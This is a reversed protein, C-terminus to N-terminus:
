TKSSIKNLIAQIKLPDTQRANASAFGFALASKSVAVASSCSSHLANIGTSQILQTVNEASVGAGAMIEIRGDGYQQMKRLQALGQMARLAGGSTLIREFGLEVAWDIAQLPDVLLDVVRHLTKGMGESAQCLEALLATDLQRQATAAGLVVGSLGLERAVQIDKLMVSKESRDYCFETSAPRIMVYVPVPSDAAARMLGYSPTLGGLELASCLEIRDVQADICLKLAQVNDICVELSPKM